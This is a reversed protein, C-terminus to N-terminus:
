CTTNFKSTNNGSNGHMARMDHPINKLNQCENQAWFGRSRNLKTEM